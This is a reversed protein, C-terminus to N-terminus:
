LMWHSLGANNRCSKSDQEVKKLPLLDLWEDRVSIRKDLCSLCLLQEAVSAHYALDNEHGFPEQAQTALSM